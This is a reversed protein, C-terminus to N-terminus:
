SWVIKGDADAGNTLLALADVADRGANTVIALRGETPRSPLPYLTIQSKQFDSYKRLRPQVPKQQNARRTLDPIAL